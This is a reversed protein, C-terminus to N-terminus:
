PIAACIAKVRSNRARLRADLAVTFVANALKTHHYRIWRAGGFFMSAGNGGLAGGKGLYKGDLAVHEAELM